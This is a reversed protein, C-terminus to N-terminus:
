PPAVPYPALQLVLLAYVIGVIGGVLVETSTHGLLEKLERESIPQGSFMERLIQNLIRAHQGSEQRVGRADYMVILALVTAIAFLGSSFGYHVGVTTALSTVMAAHSSPMGGTGLLVRISFQRQRYAEWIFKFFQVGLAATIPILLTRNSLVADLFQM